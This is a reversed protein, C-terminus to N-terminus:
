WQERMCHSRNWGLGGHNCLIYWARFGRLLGAVECVRKWVCQSVLSASVISTGVLCWPIVPEWTTDTAIYISISQDTVQSILLYVVVKRVQRLIDRYRLYRPQTLNPLIISAPSCGDVQTDQRERRRKKSRSERSSHIFSHIPPKIPPTLSDSSAYFHLFATTPYSLIPNLHIHMPLHSSPSRRRRERINEEKKGKHRIGAEIQEPLQLTSRGTSSSNSQVMMM